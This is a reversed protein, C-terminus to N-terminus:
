ALLRRQRLYAHLAEDWSRLGRGILTPLVTTTLISTAPRPAPRKAEAMPVARINNRPRGLLDAIRHAFALRSCGGANAVHVIRFTVQGGHDLGGIMEGLAEAVDETYSPSTAQDTFADVTTGDLAAQIVRDCFSERGPGFLTSPRVIIGRTYGLVVREAELKTRGYVSIPNPIDREDYPSGKTGDFVYDTSVHVLWTATSRLAEVVHATTEVNQAQAEAPELECRDVDSQAQTHIVVDPGVARFTESTRRADLLDCVAHRAGATGAPAHRSLGTVEGVQALQRSLAQGLLGTSGTILIKM